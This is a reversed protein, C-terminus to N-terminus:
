LTSKKIFNIIKIKQSERFCEKYASKHKDWLKEDGFQENCDYGVQESMYEDSLPIFNIGSIEKVFELDKQKNFADGKFAFVLGNIYKSQKLNNIEINYIHKWFQTRTKYKGAFAPAFAIIGGIENQLKQGVLLATWGGVSHGSIFIQKKPVGSKVYINIKEIIDKVRAKPKIEASYQSFKTGIANSCFGDVIVEKNNIKNKTIDNLIYPIGFNSNLEQPTCPTQRFNGSAGPTFIIVIKDSPNNMQYINKEKDNKVINPYYISSYLNEQNNACGGFGISLLLMIIIYSLKKM